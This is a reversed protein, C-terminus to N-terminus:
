AKVGVSHWAPASTYVITVKDKRHEAVREAIRAETVSDVATTPDNLILIPADSAIARALAVRQRQGGSLNGGNEGVERGFGGPIDEASAVRLAAVARDYDDHVNEAISGEFLSARHPAVIVRERPLLRLNEPAKDAIVTVGNPLAPTAPAEGYDVPDAALISTIRKASAQGNAWVSAINRGLMTMPTIIFQTLGVVTILEGVTILERMALMGAAIGVAIVYIGGVIETTANLRAQAANAEITRVYAEDSVESYRARVTVVAGLGKIIRLGQVVDTATAAANALARQRRSSRLRLPKSALVSIFVVIPGGILIALGLPVNILAAMTAVYIISAVEAVPFVTMMVAFAVRQTDTSAISLLEGASRKEGAMGCPQQIRDTVAMRVDHAIQLQARQFLSRAFWGAAANVAFVVALVAVWLWLSRLNSTAIASDIARGVIVPTLGNAVFTVAMLIGAPITWNKRSLVTKLLWRPDNPAPLTTM